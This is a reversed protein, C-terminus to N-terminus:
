RRIRNRETSVNLEKLPIRKRIRPSAKSSSQSSSPSKGSDSIKLSKSANSARLRKAIPQHDEGSSDDESFAKTIRRFKRKVGQVFKAVSNCVTNVVSVSDNATSTVENNMEFCNSAAVNEDEIVSHYHAADTSDDSACKVEPLDTLLELLSGDVQMDSETPKELVVVPETLSCTTDGGSCEDPLSYYQTGPSDAEDNPADNDPKNEQPLAKTHDVDPTVSLMENWNCLGSVDFSDNFLDDFFTLDDPNIPSSKDECPINEKNDAEPIHEGLYNMPKEVAFVGPLSAVTVPPNQVEQVVTSPQAADSSNGSSCPESPDCKSKKSHSIKRSRTKMILSKPRTQDEKSDNIAKTVEIMSSFVNSDTHFEQIVAFSQIAVVYEQKEEFYDFSFSLLRILFFCGDTTRIRRSLKYENTPVCLVAFPEDLDCYATKDPISRCAGFIFPTVRLLQLGLRKDRISRAWHSNLKKQLSASM